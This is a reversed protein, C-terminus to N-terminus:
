SELPATMIPGPANVLAVERNHPMSMMLTRLTREGGGPFVKLFQFYLSVGIGM